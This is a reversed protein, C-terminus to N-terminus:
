AGHLLFMTLPVIGISGSSLATSVEGSVELRAYPIASMLVQGSSDITM